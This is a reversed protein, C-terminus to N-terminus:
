PCREDVKVVAFDVRTTTAHRGPAPTQGCVKWNRGVFQMRRDGLADHSAITTFGADRAADQASQLDKGASDPLTATAKESRSSLFLIAAIVVVTLVMGKKM